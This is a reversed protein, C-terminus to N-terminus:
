LWGREAFSVSENQGLVIHDLIRADVLKLADTIKNTIMRDAISPEAVGSPHNHAMIIAAANYKLVNKVLKRPYIPSENITGLFLAEDNILRNQNDLYLIYIVEREQPELKLRLYNKTDSVSQFTFPKAKLKKKLIRLALHIVRQQKSLKKM